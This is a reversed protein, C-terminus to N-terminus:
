PTAAASPVLEIKFTLDFSEFRWGRAPDFSFGRGGAYPNTNMLGLGVSAGAGPTVVLSYVADVRTPLVPDIAFTNWQNPEIEFPELELADLVRGSVPDQENSLEYMGLTLQAGSAAEVWLSLRAMAFGDAPVSFTQAVSWSTGLAPEYAWTATTNREDQTITM